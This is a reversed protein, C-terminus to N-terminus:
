RRGQRRDCRGAQRRAHRWILVPSSLGPNARMVRAVQKEHRAITILSATEHRSLTAYASQRQWKGFDRTCPNQRKAELLGRAAVIMLDRRARFAAQVTLFEAIAVQGADIDTM